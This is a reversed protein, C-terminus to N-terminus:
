IFGIGSVYKREGSMKCKKKLKWFNINHSCEFCNSIYKMDGVLASGPYMRVSTFVYTSLYFQGKSLISFTGKVSWQLSIAHIYSHGGTRCFFRYGLVGKAFKLM